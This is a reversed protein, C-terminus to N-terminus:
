KWFLRYHEVKPSYNYIIDIKRLDELTMVQSFGSYNLIFALILIITKM